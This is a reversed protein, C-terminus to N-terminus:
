LDKDERDDFYEAFSQAEAIKARLLKETDIIWEMWNEQVHRPWRDSISTMLGVNVALEVATISIEKYSEHQDEPIDDCRREDGPLSHFLQNDSGAIGLPTLVWGRQFSRGPARSCGCTTKGQVEWSSRVRDPTYQVRM